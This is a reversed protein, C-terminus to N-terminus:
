QCPAFLEILAVQRSCSAIVVVSAGTASHCAAPFLARFMIPGGSWFAPLEASHRGSSLSSLKLIPPAPCRGTCFYRGIYIWGDMPTQLKQEILRQLTESYHPIISVCINKKKLIANTFVSRFNEIHQDHICLRRRQNTHHCLVEVLPTRLHVNNVDTTQHQVFGTSGLFALLINM